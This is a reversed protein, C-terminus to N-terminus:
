LSTEGPHELLVNKIVLMRKHTQGDNSIVDITRKRSPLIVNSEIPSLNSSSMDTPINGNLCYLLSQSLESETLDQIDESSGFDDPQSSFSSDVPASTCVSRSLLYESFNM